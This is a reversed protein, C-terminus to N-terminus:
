RTTVVPCQANLVVYQSTSGSVFKGVKSRRRLGLVIEEAAIRDAYDVLEEGAPNASVLLHTEANVGAGQFIKAIERKLRDETRNIEEYPMNRDQAIVQVVDVSGGFSEARRKALRAAAVAAKTGDYGVLIKM